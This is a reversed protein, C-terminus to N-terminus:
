VEQQNHQQQSPSMPTTAPDLGLSAQQYPYTNVKDFQAPNLRLVFHQGNGYSTKVPLFWLLKNDGFVSRFNRCAGLNFRYQEQEVNKFRPTQYAELTTMNKLVLYIHYSLLFLISMSFVSCFVVLFFVQFRGPYDEDKWFKIFQPASTGSTYIALVVTYALFQLFFKYNDFAVCNSVWHCHHDMKRICYGCTSCHHSRDPKIVNCKRCYRVLGGFSRTYIPLNRMQIVDELVQNIADDSSNMDLSDPLSYDDEIPRNPTFVTRCYSWAALVYFPLFCLLVLIRLGVSQYGQFIIYYIYVYFGWSFLASIMVFPLYRALFLCQCLCKSVGSRRPPYM